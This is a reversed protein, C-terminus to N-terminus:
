VTVRRVALIVRTHSRCIVRRANTRCALRTAKAIGELTARSVPSTPTASAAGALWDEVGVGVEVVGAVSVGSGAVVGGVSVGAEVEVGVGDCVIAGDTVAV